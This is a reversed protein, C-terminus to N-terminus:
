NDEDADAAVDKGADVVALGDAHALDADDGARRGALAADKRKQAGRAPEGAQRLLQRIREPTVGHDAAIVKLPVEDRYAAVIAAERTLDRRDM